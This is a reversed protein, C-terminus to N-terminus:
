EQSLYTNTGSIVGAARLRWQSIRSMIRELDSKSPSNTLQLKKAVTRGDIWVEEVDERGAAYVVHSVPDFVPALRASDLRIAVLDAYKGVAVSGIRDDWMQGARQYPTEPQPTRGYRQIPRKFKM